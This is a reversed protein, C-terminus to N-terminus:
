MFHKRISSLKASLIHNETEAAVARRDSQVVRRRLTGILDALEKLCRAEVTKPASAVNDVKKASAGVSAGVSANVPEAVPTEEPEEPVPTEKPEEPVPTEETEELVPTEETEETEEPEEPTGTDSESEILDPDLKFKWEDSLEMTKEDLHIIIKKRTDFRGIVVKESKSKFVITSEPHWITDHGPLKKLKIKRVSKTKTAPM